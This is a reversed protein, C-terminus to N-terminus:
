GERLAPHDPFNLRIVRLYDEKLDNLGLADYAKVIIGLAEPMSPTDQFNDIVNKARGAAAAYAEYDLYYKAVHIEHQALLNKAIRMRYRADDAYDSGPHERLLRAFDQFAARLSKPDRRSRDRPILQNVFHQGTGFNASGRMYLAYDVRPHSPNLRIFRDAAAIASETEDAKLYYYIIDLQAQKAKPHFPYTAQLSELQEVAGTYDGTRGSLSANAYLREAEDKGASANDADNGGFISCSALGLCLLLVTLVRLM